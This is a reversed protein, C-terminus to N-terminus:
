QQLHPFVVMTVTLMGALTAAGSTHGIELVANAARKLTELSANPAVLSNLCSSVPKSARGEAAQTLLAVSVVTSRNEADTILRDTFQDVSAQLWEDSVGQLAVLLGALVDDGAPTAGPGYGLYSRPTSLDYVSTGRTSLYATDTLPSSATGSDTGGLEAVVTSVFDVFSPPVRAYSPVGDTVQIQKLANLHGIGDSDERDLWRLLRVYSRVPESGFVFQRCSYQPLNTRYDPSELLNPQLEVVLSTGIGVTLGGAGDIRLQCKSGQQCHNRFSFGLPTETSILLPGDRLEDAGVAVVSSQYRGSVAPLSLYVTRDFVATITAALYTADTTALQSRVRQLLEAATEGSGNATLRVYGQGM